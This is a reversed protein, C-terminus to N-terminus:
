LLLDSVSKDQTDTAVAGLRQVVRMGSSVRGFITHKGDLYPTPSLTLFFQSGALLGDACSADSSLTPHTSRQQKSGFQGHCPHGRRHFAARFEARGRQISTLMLLPGNVHRVCLKGGYISTGGRGTGTPDGGQIM